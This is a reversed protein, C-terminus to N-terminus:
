GTLCVLKYPSENNNCENSNEHQEEYLSSKYMKKFTQPM